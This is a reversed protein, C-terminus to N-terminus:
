LDFVTFAQPSPELRQLSRGEPLRPLDNEPVVATAVGEAQLAKQFARAADSDLSKMLIGQATVSLRVADADTLTHFSKFARKLQDATPSASDKQLVAFQRSSSMPKGRTLLVGDASKGAPRRPAHIG